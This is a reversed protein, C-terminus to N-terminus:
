ERHLLRSMARLPATLRFSKSNWLSEIEQRAAELEARTEDRERELAAGRERAKRLQVKATEIEQRLAPVTVRSEREYRKRFDTSRAFLATTRQHRLTVLRDVVDHRRGEDEAAKALDPGTLIVADQRWVGPEALVTPGAPDEPDVRALRVQDPFFVFLPYRGALELVERDDLHLIELMCAVNRRGDLLQRAGEIVTLELGETDIKLCVSEHDAAAIDRDLTTCPVSIRSTGESRMTSDSQEVRSTGSWQADVLFDVEGDDHDTAALQRITIETDLDDVTAQLFPLVAPNPEYALVRARPPLDVLLMEGYNSGVDAVVDWDHLGLATIWLDCSEPYLVGASGALTTGRPDAPDIYVHRGHPLEVRVPSDDERDGASTM